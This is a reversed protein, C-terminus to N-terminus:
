VHFDGPSLRQLRRTWISMASETPEPARTNTALLSEKQARCRAHIAKPLWQFLRTWAVDESGWRAIEVDDSQVVQQLVFRGSSVGSM